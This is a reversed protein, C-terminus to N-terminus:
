AEPPGLLTTLERVDALDDVAQVAGIILRARREGLRGATLSVFKGEVEEPSVPNAADGRVVGTTRSLARGDSLELLVLKAAAVTGARLDALRTGHVCAALRTLYDM